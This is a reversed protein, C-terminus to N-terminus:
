VPAKEGVDELGRELIGRTRGKMIFGRLGGFVSLVRFGQDSIQPTSCHLDAFVTM